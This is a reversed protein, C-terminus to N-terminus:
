FLKGSHGGLAPSATLRGRGARTSRVSKLMEEKVATNTFGSRIGNEAFTLLESPKFGLTAAIAYERGITTAVRTPDDTCITVPVGADVFRRLPHEEYSPVAGLVVNCTLSVEITVGRKAIKDLLGPVRWAHVAHGLRTLGPVELAAEINAPSFEGAHCTIGMGAAAAREALRSIRTFDAESDYPDPHFDVGALGEKAAELAWHVRAELEKSNAHGVAWTTLAEAHFGPYRAGVRREAARFCSMMFDHYVTAGGLRVEVYVAGDAAAEEFLAQLRAEMYDPREHFDAFADRDFSNNLAALRAFGPPIEAMVRRIVAPWDHPECRGRRALLQQLRPESEAHCHVDTKPLRAVVEDAAIPELPSLARNM